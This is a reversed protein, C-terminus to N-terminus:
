NFQQPVWVFKDKTPKSVDFIVKAQELSLWNPILGKMKSTQKFWNSDILVIEGETAGFHKNFRNIKKKSESNLFGKVEHYRTKGNLETVKYDPKYSFPGTKYPEKPFEFVRPEYEWNKIQGKLLLWELYASYNMEWLSRMWYDKGHYQVWGSINSKYAGSNVANGKSKTVVGKPLTRWKAM